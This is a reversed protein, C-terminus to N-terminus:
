EENSSFCHNLPLDERHLLFSWAHAHLLERSNIAERAESFLHVRCRGSRDILVDDKRRFPPTCMSIIGIESRGKERVEVQWLTDDADIFALKM